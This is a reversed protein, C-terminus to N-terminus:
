DNPFAAEFRRADSEDAFRWEVPYGDDCENSGIGWEGVCNNGCWDERAAYYSKDSIRWPSVVVHEPLGPHSM